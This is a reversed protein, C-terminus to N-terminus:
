SRERWLPYMIKPKGMNGIVGSIFAKFVVIIRDPQKRILRKLAVIFFSFFVFPLFYPYYDKILRVRNRLMLYDVWIPRKFCKNKNSAAGTTGGEKHYVISDRAWVLGIGKKKARICYDFEENYLFFDERLLGVFNFINRHVFLSAGSIIHLNSEVDKTKPLSCINIGSYLPRDIGVTKIFKGGATCQVTKKDYFFVITSGVLVQKNSINYRNCLSDLANKDLTTDNNIIWFAQCNKNASAFKIGANNGASYGDNSSRKLLFSQYKHQFNEGEHICYVRDLKQWEELIQVVSNKNSANDVVIIMGPKQNLAYISKLCAITDLSNNYNLIIIAVENATIM